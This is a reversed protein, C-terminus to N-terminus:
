LSHSRFQLLGRQGGDIWRRRYVPVDSAGPVLQEDAVPAVVKIGILADEDDPASFGSHRHRNGHHIDQALPYGLAYQHRLIFM